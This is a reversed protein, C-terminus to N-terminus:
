HCCQKPHPPLVGRALTRQPQPRPRVRRTQLQWEYHPLLASEWSPALWNGARVISRRGPLLITKAASQDIEEKTNSRHLHLFHVAAPVHQSQVVQVALPVYLWQRRLTMAQVHADGSLGLRLLIPLTLQGYLEKSRKRLAHFLRRVVAQQVRAQAQPLREHISAAVDLGAVHIRARRWRALLLQLEEPRLIPLHVDIGAGHLLVQRYLKEESPARVILTYYDITILVPLHCGM